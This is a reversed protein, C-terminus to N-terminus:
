EKLREVIPAYYAKLSRLNYKEAAKIAKETGTPLTTYLLMGGGAFAAVYLGSLYAGVGLAIISSNLVFYKGANRWDGAYACGAGPIVSLLMAIDSNRHCPKASNDTSGASLSGLAAAEELLARFDDMLDAEYSYILKQRLLESGQEESLGFRQIRCVTGYARAPDGSEALLSAKLLLLSDRVARDDTEWVRMECMAASLLPDAAPSAYGGLPTGGEADNSPPAWAGAQSPHAASGRVPDSAIVEGAAWEAGRVSFGICLFAFISCFLLKKQM